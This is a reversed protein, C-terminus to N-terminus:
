AAKALIYIGAIVSAAIVVTKILATQSEAATLAAEQSQSKNASLIQAVQANSSEQSQTLIRELLGGAADVVNQVTQFAEPSTINVELEGDQGAVYATQAQVSGESSVYSDQANLSRSSTQSESQTGGGAM